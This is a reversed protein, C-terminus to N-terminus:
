NWKIQPSTASLPISVDAIISAKSTNFCTGNQTRRPRTTKTIYLSPKKLIERELILRENERRLRANEIALGARADSSSGPATSWCVPSPSTKQGGLAHHGLAEHWRPLLQPSIGLHKGIVQNKRGSDEWLKVAEIKFERTFRRKTTKM